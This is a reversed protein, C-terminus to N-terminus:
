LFASNSWRPKAAPGVRQLSPRRGVPRGFGMLVLVVSSPEPVVGVVAPKAGQEYGGAVFAAVMDGSGFQTDGNWDGDEWGAHEGTEYKGRVFAQVMDSSNFEMDLNADGIWTGKLDNVWIKVNRSTLSATMM